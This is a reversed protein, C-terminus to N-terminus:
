RMLNLKEFIRVMAFTDMKCYELLNKRHQENVVDDKEERMKLFTLSAMGGENVELNEYSLEPVMVPLVDKISYSGYFNPHYYKRSRFPKMLDVFRSSTAEVIQTYKPFAIATEKLRSNEFPSNYAVISGSEGLHSMLHQMFPERPDISPDALFEFHDPASSNEKLVHLSYQFPIQQYPKTNNLEPIATSYTEFDLFWIPYSFSNLFERLAVRDLYEEGSLYHALQFAAAAPLHTESPIDLLKVIGSKYLEYQVGNTRGRLEFVSDDPIHSWCYNTFDCAYPDYCQPGIDVEPIKKAAVMTKLETAKQAITGTM